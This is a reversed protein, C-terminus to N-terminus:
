RHDGTQFYRAYLSAVEADLSELESHRRAHDPALPTPDAGVWAPDLLTLLRDTM